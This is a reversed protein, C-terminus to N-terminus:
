TTSTSRRSTPRSRASEATSSGCPTPIPPKATAATPPIDAQRGLRFHKVGYDSLADVEGVVSPPSRFSPNGYLPETCFSCRYACGRSTELECILHQPHNPHQEVIFAGEQAWRSVENVDRM